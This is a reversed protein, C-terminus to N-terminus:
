SLRASMLGALACAADTNTPKPKPASRRGEPMAFAFGARRKVRACAKCYSTTGKYFPVEEPTRKCTTCRKVYNALRKAWYRKM